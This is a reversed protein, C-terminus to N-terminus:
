EDEPPAGRARAVVNKIMSYVRGCDPLQEGASPETLWVLPDSTGHRYRTPPLYVLQGLGLHAVAPEFQPMSSAEPRHACRVLLVQRGDPCGIVPGALGRTLLEDQVSAALPAAVDIGAMREPVSLAVTTPGGIATVPWGLAERYLQAAALCEDAPDPRQPAM